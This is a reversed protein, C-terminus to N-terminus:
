DARSPRTRAQAAMNVAYAAHPSLSDAALALWRVAVVATNVSVSAALCVRVGFRDVVYLCLVSGPIYCFLYSSALANVAAAGVDFRAEALDALPAFCIWPGAWLFAILCFLLLTVFRQPSAVFAEGHAGM